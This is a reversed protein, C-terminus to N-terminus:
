HLTHSYAYDLSFSVNMIEERELTHYADDTKLSFHDCGGIYLDGITNQRKEKKKKKVNENQVVAVM